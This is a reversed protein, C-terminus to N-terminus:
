NTCLYPHDFYQDFIHICFKIISYPSPIKGKGHRSRITDYWITKRYLFLGLRSAYRVKKLRNKGFDCFINTKITFRCYKGRITGFM